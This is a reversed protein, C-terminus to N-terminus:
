QEDAGFAHTSPRLSLSEGGSNKQFVWRSDNRKDLALVKASSQLTHHAYMATYMAGFVFESEAEPQNRDCTVM